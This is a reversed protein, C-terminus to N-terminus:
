YTDYLDYLAHLCQTADYRMDPNPELMPNLFDAYLQAIQPTFNYKGVFVDFLCWPKHTKINILKATDMNYYEPSYCGKSILEPTILNHGVLEAILALHDEDKTYSSSSGTKSRHPEFLFDKTKLEFAICALSWIDIKTSYAMGILVEFSRIQRTQIHFNNYILEDDEIIVGSGLDAIKINAQKFMELDFDSCESNPKAIKRLIMCDPNNQQYKYLACDGIYKLQTPTYSFLINEVKLDTHIIKCKHLYQLGVIIQKLIRFLNDDDLGNFDPNSVLKLLNPGLLEMVICVHYNQTNDPEANDSDPYINFEDYKKVLYNCGGDIQSQRYLINHIKVEEDGAYAYNYASKIIKISVYTYYFFDYALWVTSFSGWGLQEIILYKGNNLLDGPKTSRYGGEYYETKDELINLGYIDELNIPKLTNHNLEINDPTNDRSEVPTEDPTIHPSEDSEVSEDSEDINQLINYFKYNYYPLMLVIDM